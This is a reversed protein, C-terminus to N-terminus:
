SHNVADSPDVVCQHAFYATYVASPTFISLTDSKSGDDFTVEQTIFNEDGLSNHDSGGGEGEGGQEESAILPVAVVIFFLMVIVILAIKNKLLNELPM